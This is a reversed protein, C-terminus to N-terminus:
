KPARPNIPVSPVGGPRTPNQRPPPPQSKPGGPKPSPKPEPRPEPEPQNPRNPQNPNRQSPTFGGRRSGAYTNLIRARGAETRAANQLSDPNRTVNSVPDIVRTIAFFPSAPAYQFSGGSEEGLWVTITLANLRDLTLRSREELESGVDARSSVLNVPALNMKWRYRENGYAISLNSDPLTDPDDLYQLILRNSIEAAALRQQQRIQQGMVMSIGVVIVSSLTALLAVAVVTEILTLGRRRPLHSRPRNVQRARHTAHPAAKGRDGKEPSQRNATAKWPNVENV